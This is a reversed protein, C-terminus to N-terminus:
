QELLSQTGFGVRKSAMSHAMDNDASTVEDESDYESLFELKLNTTGGNTGFEVDNDISNLVDFPNSNSVEITPEMVKKKNGSSSANPKKSVPRYENQPKFGMKLGVSIG